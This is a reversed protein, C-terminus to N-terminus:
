TRILTITKNDKEFIQCWYCDSTKKYGKSKLSKELRWEQENTEYSLKKM